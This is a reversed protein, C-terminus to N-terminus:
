ALKFSYGNHDPDLRNALFWDDNNSLSMSCSGYRKFEQVKRLLWRATKHNGETVLEMHLQQWKKLTTKM